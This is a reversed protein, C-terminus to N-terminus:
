PLQTPSPPLRGLGNTRAPVLAELATADRCNVFCELLKGDTLCAGDAEVMLTRLHTIVNNMQSM